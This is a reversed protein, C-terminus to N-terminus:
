TRNRKRENPEVGRGEEDIEKGRQMQMLCSGKRGHKIFEAIPYHLQLKETVITRSNPVTTKAPFLFELPSGALGRLKHLDFLKATSYAHM